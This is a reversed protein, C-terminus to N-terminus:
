TIWRLYSNIDTYITTRTKETSKFKSNTDTTNKVAVHIFWLRKQSCTVTLSVGTFLQQHHHCPQPVGWFRTLKSSPCNESFLARRKREGFMPFDNGWARHKWICKSELEVGSMGHKTSSGARKELSLSFDSSMAAYHPDVGWRLALFVSIHLKIKFMHPCVACIERAIFLLIMESAAHTLSAQNLLQLKSTVNYVENRSVTREAMSLTKSLCMKCFSKSPNGLVREMDVSTQGVTQCLTAHNFYIQNHQSYEYGYTRQKWATSLNTPWQRDAGVATFYLYLLAHKEFCDFVARDFHPITKKKQSLTFCSEKSNYFLAGATECVSEPLTYSWQLTHTHTPTM